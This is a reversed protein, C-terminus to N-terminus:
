EIIGGSDFNGSLNNRDKVDEVEGKKQTFFYKEELRLNYKDQLFARKGGM